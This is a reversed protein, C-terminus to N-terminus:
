APGEGMFADIAARTPMSPQAGESRVALAGAANAFRLAQEPSEGRWSVAMGATFADGAATADVAHVAYAPVFTAEESGTVCLAGRHGLKVVVYGAGMSLLAEAGERARAVSNVKVGVLTSLETENPSVIDAAELM